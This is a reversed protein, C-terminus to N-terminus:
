KIMFVKLFMMEMESRFYIIKSLLNPYKIDDKRM